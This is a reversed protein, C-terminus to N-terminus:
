KQYRFTSSKSVIGNVFFRPSYFLNEENTPSQRAAITYVIQFSALQLKVFRPLNGWCRKSHEFLSIEGM